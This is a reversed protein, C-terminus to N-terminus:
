SWSQECSRRERECQQGSGHWIAGPVAGLTHGGFGAELQMYGV